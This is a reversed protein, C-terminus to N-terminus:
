LKGVKLRIASSTERMKLALQFVSFFCLFITARNRKRWKKNQRHKVLRNDDVAITRSKCSIRIYPRKIDQVNQTSKTYNKNTVDCTQWLFDSLFKDIKFVNLFCVDIELCVTSLIFSFYGCFVPRYM